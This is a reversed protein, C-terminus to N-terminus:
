DGAVAEGLVLALPHEVHRPRATERERIDALQRRLRDSMGDIAAYMDAARHRIRVVQGGTTITAEVVQAEAIRPNREVSLEVDCSCDRTFFRELRTMRRAVHERLPETVDLNRGHVDIRM